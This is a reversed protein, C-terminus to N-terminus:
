CTMDRSLFSQSLFFFCFFFFFFFFFFFVVVLFFFLLFVCFFFFCAFFHFGVFGLDFMVQAFFCLFDYFFPPPPPPPPQEGWTTWLPPFPIPFSLNLAPSPRGVVFVILLSFLFFFFFFFFCRRVSALDPFFHERRWIGVKSNDSPRSVPFLFFFLLSVRRRDTLFVLLFYFPSCVGGVQTTGRFRRSFECVLERFSFFAFFHLVTRYVWSEDSPDFFCRITTWLLHLFPLL